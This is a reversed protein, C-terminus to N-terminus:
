GRGVVARETPWSLQEFTLAPENRLTRRTAALPDLGRATTVSRSASLGNAMKAPSSLIVKQWDDAFLQRSLGDALWAPIEASRARANRNAYELLLVGTMARAFRTRPLVDPMRVQYNWGGASRQSVIAVDEDTSQAPHLALFIKGRWPANPNLDLERQLSAKIREASVALLAPELRVFDANTAIDPRAALGARAAPIARQHRHVPRFRQAIFGHRSASGTRPCAHFFDGPLFGAVASDDFWQVPAVLERPM